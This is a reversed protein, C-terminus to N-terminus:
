RFLAYNFFVFFTPILNICDRHYFCRPNKRNSNKDSDPSVAELCRATATLQLNRLEFIVRDTTVTVEQNITRTPIVQTKINRQFCNKKLHM